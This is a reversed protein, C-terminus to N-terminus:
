LIKLFSFCTACCIYSVDNVSLCQPTCLIHYSPLIEVTIKQGRISKSNIINVNFNQNNNSNNNNNNNDNSEETITRVMWPKSRSMVRLEILNREKKFKLDNCLNVIMDLAMEFKKQWEKEFKVRNGSKGVSSHIISDSKSASKYKEKEKKRKNRASQKPTQPSEM